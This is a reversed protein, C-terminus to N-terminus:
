RLKRFVSGTVATGEELLPMLVPYLATLADSSMHADVAAQDTYHEWFYFTDPEDAEILTYFLTGPEKGAQEFMTGFANKLDEAKGPKAKMTAFMVRESM